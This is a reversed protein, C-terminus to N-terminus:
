TGHATHESKNHDHRDSRYAHEMYCSVPGPLCEDDVTKQQDVVLGLKCSPPPILTVAGPRSAPFAIIMKSPWRLSPTEHGTIVVETDKM